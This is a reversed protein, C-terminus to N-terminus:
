KDKVKYVRFEEKGDEKFNISVNYDEQLVVDARMIKYNDDLVKDEISHYKCSLNFCSKDDPINYFETNVMYLLNDDYFCFGSTM